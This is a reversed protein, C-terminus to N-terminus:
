RQFICKILKNHVLDSSIKSFLAVLQLILKSVLFGEARNIISEKINFNELASWFYIKFKGSIKLELKSCKRKIEDTQDWKSFLFYLDKDNNDDIDKKLEDLMEDVVPNSIDLVMFLLDETTNFRYNYNNLFNSERSPYESIKMNVKHSHEDFFEIEAVKIAKNNKDDESAPEYTNDVFRNFISTKGSKEM